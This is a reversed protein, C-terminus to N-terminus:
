EEKNETTDTAPDSPTAAPTSNSSVVRWGQHQWLEDYSHRAVQVREDGPLDPHTMIVFESLEEPAPQEIQKRSM